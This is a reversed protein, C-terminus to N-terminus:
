EILFDEMIEGMYKSIIQLEEEEEVVEYIYDSDEEGVVRLIVVEMDKGEEKELDSAPRNGALLYKRGAIEAEELVFFAEECGNEDTLMIPMEEQGRGKKNQKM